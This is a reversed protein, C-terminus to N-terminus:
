RSPNPPGGAVSAIPFFLRGERGAAQPFRWSSVIGLVRPTVEPLTTELVETHLVVGAEDLAVRLSVAGEAAGILPSRLQLLDPDEPPRLRVPPGSTAEAARFTIGLALYTSRDRLKEYLRGRAELDGPERFWSMYRSLPIEFDLGSVMRTMGPEIPGQFRIEQATGSPRLLDLDLRFRPEEAQQPAPTGPPPPYVRVRIGRRGDARRLEWRAESTAPAPGLTLLQAFYADPIRRALTALWESVQVNAGDTDVLFSLQEIPSFDSNLRRIEFVRVEVVLAGSDPREDAGATGVAAGFMLAALGPGITRREM